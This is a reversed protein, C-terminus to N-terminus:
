RLPARLGSIACATLVIGSLISVGLCAAAISAAVIPLINVAGEPCLQAPARCLARAGRVCLSCRPARTRAPARGMRGV